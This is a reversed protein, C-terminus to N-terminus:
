EGLTHLGDRANAPVEVVFGVAREFALLDVGVVLRLHNIRHRVVCRVALNVQSDDSRLSSEVIFRLQGDHDWRLYIAEVGFV